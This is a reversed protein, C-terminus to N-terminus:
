SQVGEFIGPLSCVPQVASSDPACCALVRGSSARTSSTLIKRVRDSPRAAGGGPSAPAAAM